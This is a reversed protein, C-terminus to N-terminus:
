FPWSLILRGSPLSAAHPICHPTIHEQLSVPSLVRAATSLALLASCGPELSWQSPIVIISSAPLLTQAAINTIPKPYVSCVAPAQLLVPPLPSLVEKVGPSPDQSWSLCHCFEISKLKLRHKGPVKWPACHGLVTGASVWGMVESFCLEEFHLAVRCFYNWSTGDCAKVLESFFHKWSCFM